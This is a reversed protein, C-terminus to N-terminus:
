RASSAPSRIVSMSRPGVAAPLRIAVGGDALQGRLGTRVDGLHTPADILFGQPGHAL